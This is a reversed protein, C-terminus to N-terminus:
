CVPCKDPVTIEVEIRTGIRPIVEIDTADRKLAVHLLYDADITEFSEVAYGCDALILAYYM